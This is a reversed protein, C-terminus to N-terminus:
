KYPCNRRYLENVVADDRQGCIKRDLLNEPGKCDQANVISERGLQKCTMSRVPPRKLEPLALALSSSLVVLSGAAILLLRM